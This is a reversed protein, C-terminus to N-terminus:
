KGYEKLNLLQNDTEQLGLENPNFVSGYWEIYSAREPHSKDKMIELFKEFGPIGGVEEPPCTGEGEICKPHLLREVKLEKFIRM